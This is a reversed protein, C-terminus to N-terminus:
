SAHDLIFRYIPSPEEGILLSYESVDDVGNVHSPFAEFMLM